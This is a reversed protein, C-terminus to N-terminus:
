PNPSILSTEDHVMTNRYIYGDRKKRTVMTNLHLQAQEEPTRNQKGETYIEVKTQMKGNEQGWTVTITNSQLVAKWLQNSGRANRKILDETVTM